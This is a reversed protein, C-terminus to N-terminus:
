LRVSKPASFTCDYAPCTRGSQKIMLKYAEPDVTHGDVLGVEACGQGQWKDNVTADRTYYNDKADTYYSSAQGASLAAVSEM